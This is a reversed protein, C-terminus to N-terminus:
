RKTVLMSFNMVNQAKCDKREKSTNTNLINSNLMLLRM